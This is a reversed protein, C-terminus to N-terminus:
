CTMTMWTVLVWADRSSDLVQMRRAAAPITGSVASVTFTMLSCLVSSAVPFLGPASSSIVSGMGEPARVVGGMARAAIASSSTKECEMRQLRGTIPGTVQAIM